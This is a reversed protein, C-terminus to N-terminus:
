FIDPCLRGYSTEAVIRNGMRGQCALGLMLGLELGFMVRVRIKVSVMFRVSVYLPQRRIPRCSILYIKDLINQGTFKTRYKNDQINRTGKTLYIQGTHITQIYKTRTYKTWTYKTLTYNIRTYKICTVHSYIEFEFISCSPVGCDQIDININTNVVCKLVQM